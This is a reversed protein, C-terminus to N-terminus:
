LTCRWLSNSRYSYRAASKIGSSLARSPQLYCWHERSTKLRPKPKKRYQGEIVAIQGTFRTRM